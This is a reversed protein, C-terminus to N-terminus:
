SKKRRKLRTPKKGSAIVGLLGRQKKTIAKGRLAPKKERLVKKAKAQSFPSKRKARETPTHVPM